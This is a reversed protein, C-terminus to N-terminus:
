RGGPPDRWFLVGATAAGAGLAFLVSQDDYRYRSEAYAYVVLAVGAAAVLQWVHRNALPNPTSM